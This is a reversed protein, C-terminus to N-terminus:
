APARTRAGSQARRGAHGSAGEEDHGLAGETMGSRGRGDHGSKNRADMEAAAIAGISIGPVLGPMVLLPMVPLPGPRRDPLGHSIDHKTM